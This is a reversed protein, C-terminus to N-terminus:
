ERYQIQSNKNLFYYIILVIIIVILINMLSPGDKWITSDNFLETGDKLVDPIIENQNGVANSISIIIGSLAKMPLKAIDITLMTNSKNDIVHNKIDIDPGFFLIIRTLPLITLTKIWEGSINIYHNKGCQIVPQTNCQKEPTSFSYMGQGLLTNNSTGNPFQLQLDIAYKSQKPNLTVNGIKSNADNMNPLQLFVMQTSAVSVTSAVGRQGANSDASASVTSGVGRGVNSVTPPTNVSTGVGRGVNSVTQTAAGSSVKPSPFYDSCYDNLCKSCAVNGNGDDLCNEEHTWSSLEPKNWANNIQSQGATGALLRINKCSSAGNTFVMCRSCLPQGEKCSDTITVDQFNNTNILNTGAM